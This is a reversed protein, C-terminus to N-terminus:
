IQNLCDAFFTCLNYQNYQGCYMVQENMGVVSTKLLITCISMKDWTGQNYEM